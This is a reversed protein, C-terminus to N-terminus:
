DEEKIFAELFLNLCANDQESLNNHKKKSIKEVKKKLEEVDVIEEMWKINIKTKTIAVHDEIGYSTTQSICGSLFECIGNDTKLLKTVYNKPEDITAWDKWRFLVNLLDPIKSFTKLKSFTRIKQVTLDKLVKHEETTFLYEHRGEEEKPTELSVFTVIAGLSKCKIILNKAIELRKNTDEIKKLIQYAFRWLIVRIHEDEMGRTEHPYKDSSNFIGLLFSEMDEINIKEKFEPYRNLFNKALKRKNLRLMAKELEKTNKALSIIEDIETQPLIKSPVTLIFYSDFRDKACIRKSKHWEEQFEYSYSSKGYVNGISPFLEIVIEKIVERVSDDSKAFIDDLAKKKEDTRNGFRDRLGIFLEKNTSIEKYVVPSFVRVAEIGIFDIPNIESPLIDINFKLGNIFRKVQRISTFLNQLRGYYLNGWRVMDWAEQPFPKIVYNIEENFLEELKETEVSPVSIPIQVIKDLYEKGLFHKDDLAVSVKKDDFSLLYITNPFNANLKVLQFIQRIETRNLRDIDDIVIIIKKNLKKIKEDLKKRFEELSKSKLEGWEKSADGLDNFTTQLVQAIPSGGPILHVFPIFLKSYALLQKGIQRATEAPDKYNFAKSLEQLFITILQNQETFNWPNFNVIIPQNDSKSFKKKIEELALNIISSKGSGWEGYLGVVLSETDTWNILADGFKSAFGSRSLIDQKKKTIPEDSIFKM